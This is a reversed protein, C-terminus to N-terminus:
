TLVKDLVKKTINYHYKMYWDPLHENLLSHLQFVVELLEPACAILKANAEQEDEAIRGLIAVAKGDSDEVTLLKGSNKIEINETEGQFAIGVEWKGKTGNFNM